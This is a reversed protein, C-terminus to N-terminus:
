IKDNRPSRLLAYCDRMQKQSSVCKTGTAIERKTMALVQFTRLLRTNAKEKDDQFSNLIEAKVDKGDKQPVFHRLIEAKVDFLLFLVSVAEGSVSRATVPAPTMALLVFDSAAIEYKAKALVQLTRPLM